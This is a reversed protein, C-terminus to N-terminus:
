QITSGTPINASGRSEPVARNTKTDEPDNLTSNLQRNVTAAELCEVGFLHAM